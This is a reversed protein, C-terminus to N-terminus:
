IELPLELEPDNLPQRLEKPTHPTPLLPPSTYTLPIV